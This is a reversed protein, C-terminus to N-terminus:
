YLMIVIGVDILMYNRGLASFSFSSEKKYLNFNFGGELTLGINRKIPVLMGAFLPLSMGSETYSNDEDYLTYIKIKNGYFDLGTYFYPFIIYKENGIAFGFRPGLTFYNYDFDFNSSYSM